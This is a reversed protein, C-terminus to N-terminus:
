GPKFPCLPVPPSLLLLLLTGVVDMVAEEVIGVVVATPPLQEALYLWHPPIPHDPDVHQWIPVVHLYM